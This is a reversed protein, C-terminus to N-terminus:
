ESTVLGSYPRILVTSPGLVPRVDGPVAKPQIMGGKSNTYAKVDAMNQFIGATKYGFFYPFPLGNSGRTGGGDPQSM